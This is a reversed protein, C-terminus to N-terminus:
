LLRDHLGAVDRDQQEPSGREQQSERQGLQHVEEGGPRNGQRHVAIPGTYEGFEGKMLRQVDEPLIDTQAEGRTDGWRFSGSKDQTLLGQRRLYETSEYSGFMKDAQERTYFRGEPDVFGTLSKLYGKRGDYNVRLAADLRQAVDEPINASPILPHLSNSYIKGSAPDMIAPRIGMIDREKSALDAFREMKSAKEWPFRLSGPAFNSWLASWRDLGSMAPSKRPDQLTDTSALQAAGSETQRYHPNDIPVAGIGGLLRSMDQGYAEELSGVIQQPGPFARMGPLVPSRGVPAPTGAISLVERPSGEARIGMFDRPKPQDAGEMRMRLIKQIPPIEASTPMTERLFEAPSQTLYRTADEERPDYPELPLPL